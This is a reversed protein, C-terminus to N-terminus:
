GSTSWFAWSSTSRTTPHSRSGFKSSLSYRGYIVARIFSSKRHSCTIGVPKNHPETQLISYRDLKHREVATGWRQVRSSVYAPYRMGSPETTMGFVHYAPKTFNHLFLTDHYKCAFTARDRSMCFDTKPLVQVTEQPYDPAPDTDSLRQIQVFTVWKWSETWFIDIVLATDDCLTQGPFLIASLERNM